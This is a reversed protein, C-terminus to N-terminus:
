KSLEKELARKEKERRKTGDEQSVVQWCDVCFDVQHTAPLFYLDREPGSFTLVRRVTNKHKCGDM